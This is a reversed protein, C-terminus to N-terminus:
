EDLEQRGKDIVGKIGQAKKIGLLAPPQSQKEPNSKKAEQDARQQDLAQVRALALKETPPPPPRRGQAKAVEAAKRWFMYERIKRVVQAKPGFRKEVQKITQHSVIWAVIKLAALNQEISARQQEWAKKQDFPLSEPCVLRVHTLTLINLLDRFRVLVAAVEAKGKTKKKQTLAIRATQNSHATNIEHLIFAYKKRGFTGEVGLMDCGLPNQILYLDKVINRVQWRRIEGKAKTDQVCWADDYQRLHEETLCFSDESYIHGFKDLIVAIVLNLFIYVGMLFFTLFFIRALAPSGCDDHDGPGDWDAGNAVLRGREATTCMPPQIEANHMIYMWNDLTLVRFITWLGYRTSRFNAHRTIELQFRVRGFVEKGFITYVYILLFALFTINFVEPLSVVLTRFLFKIGSSATMLKFIRAVRLMRIAGIAAAEKIDLLQVILLSAVGGWVVVFDFRNWVSRMYGQLQYAGIKMMMELFYISLFIIDITVLTSTWWEPQSAHSSSMFAINIAILVIVTPEFYKSQVIEYLLLRGGAEAVDPPQAEKIKSEYMRSTRRFDKWAKQDTTLIGNGMEENIRDLIVAVFINVLFLSAVIVLVVFFISNLPSNMFEPQKGTSTIDMTTYVPVTWSALSAIEILTQTARGVDDFNQHPVLWARPVRVGYDNVFTGVCDIQGTRSGDNCYHLRGGFQGVAFVGFLAFIMTAFAAIVVAQPLAGWVAAVMVRLSEIKRLVRIPRLTRFSQIIKLTPFVLAIALAILLFLDLLNWNDDLYATRSPTWWFGLATARLIFEQLFIAFFLLDLQRLVKYMDEEQRANTQEASAESAPEFALTVTSILVWSVMFLEYARSNVLALLRLRFENTPGLCFCSQNRLLSPDTGDAPDVELQNVGQPAMDAERIYGACPYNVRIQEEGQSFDQMGDVDVIRTALGVELLQAHKHRRNRTLRVTSNWEVESIGGRGVDLFDDEAGGGGAKRFARFDQIMLRLQAPDVEQLEEGLIEEQTRRRAEIVEQPLALFAKVKARCGDSAQRHRAMRSLAKRRGEVFESVQKRMKESDSEGFSDLVIATFLNVLVWVSWMYFLIIFTAGVLGAGNQAVWMEYEWSDGTMVKFLMMTGSFFHDFHLRTREGTDPDVIKGAFFQVGTLSFVFFSVAAFVVLDFTAPIGQASKNLLIAMPKLGEFYYLLQLVRFFRFFSVSRQYVILTVLSCVMVLTDVRHWPNVFFTTLSNGGLVAFRIVWEALFVSTFVYECLVLVRKHRESSQATETAQICVNTTILVAVVVLAARSDVIPHLEKRLVAWSSMHPEQKRSVVSAGERLGWAECSVAIKESAVGWRVAADIQKQQCQTKVEEADYELEYLSPHKVVGEQAEGRATSYVMGVVAVFLNVCVFNLLFILLFCYLVTGGWSDADQLQYALATWSSLTSVQLTTSMAHGVDDFHTYGFNTISNGLTLCVMGDPCNGQHWTTDGDKADQKLDASYGCGRLKIPMRVVGNALDEEMVCARSMSNQFFEVSMVGFVLFFFLMFVANDIVLGVGKRLSMMIDRIGSFFKIARIMRIARFARFATFGRQEVLIGALSGLIVLFDLRYWNNQWYCKEGIFAGLAVMRLFMEFVFIALTVRDFITIIRVKESDPDDLPTVIIMTVANLIIMIYIMANFYPHVSVFFALHRWVNDVGFILFSKGELERLDCRTNILKELSGAPPM